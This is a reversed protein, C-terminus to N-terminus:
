AESMENEAIFRRLAVANPLNIEGGTTRDIVSSIYIAAMSLACNRMLADQSATVNAHM